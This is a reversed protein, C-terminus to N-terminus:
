TALQPIFVYAAEEKTEPAGSELTSEMIKARRMKRMIAEIEEERIPSSM